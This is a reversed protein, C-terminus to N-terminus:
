FNAFGTPIIMITSERGPIGDELAIALVPQYYAKAYVLVSDTLKAIQSIKEVGSDMASMEEESLDEYTKRGEFLESIVSNLRDEEGLLGGFSEVAKIVSNGLSKDEGLIIQRIMDPSFLSGYNLPVLEAFLVGDPVGSPLRRGQAQREAPTDDPYRMTLLNGRRWGESIVPVTMKGQVAAVCRQGVKGFREGAKTYTSINFGVPYYTEAVSWKGEAKSGLGNLACTTHVLGKESADSGGVPTRRALLISGTYSVLRDVHTQGGYAPNANKQQERIIDTSLVANITLVDSVDPSSM